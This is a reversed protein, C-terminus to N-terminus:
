SVRCKSMSHTATPSVVHLQKKVLYIIQDEPHIDFPVQELAPAAINACHMTAMVGAVDLVHKETIDHM